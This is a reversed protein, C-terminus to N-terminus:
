VRRLSSITTAQRTAKEEAVKVTPSSNTRRLLLGALIIM